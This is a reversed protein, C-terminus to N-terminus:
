MKLLRYSEMKSETVAKLVEVISSYEADQSYIINLNNVGALRGPLEERLTSNKLGTEIENVFLLTKDKRIVVCNKYDVPKATEANSSNEQFSTPKSRKATQEFFIALISIFIAVVSLIVAIRKILQM